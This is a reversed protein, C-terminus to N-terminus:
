STRPNLHWRGGDFWYGEHSPEIEPGCRMEPGCRSEEIPERSKGAHCRARNTANETPETKASRMRELLTWRMSSLACTARINVLVIVEDSLFVVPKSLDAPSRPLVPV